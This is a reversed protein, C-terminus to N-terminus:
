ELYPRNQRYLQLRSEYSARDEQAKLSIAKQQWKVAQLFDGKAAYAAALTDLDEPVEWKSIKCAQNADSIAQDPNRIGADQSTALIWARSNLSIGDESDLRIAESYDDLAKSRDGRSQHTTGRNRYLFGVKPSLRTAQDFDKIAAEHEGKEDFAVGRTNYSSGHEPELEIAKSYNEIAKDLNNLSHWAIGRHHYAWSTNPHFLLYFTYYDVAKDVAIVDYHKVRLSGSLAM